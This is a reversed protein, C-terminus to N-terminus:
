PCEIYHEPIKVFIKKPQNIRVAGSNIDIRVSDRPHVITIHTINPVLYGGEMKKDKYHITMDVTDAPIQIRIKELEFDKCKLYYQILIEDNEALDGRDVQNFIKKKHSSLIYHEKENKDTIQVYEIAPDLGIPLGLLLSQFFDYTVETGLLSSIYGLTEAFYCKEGKNVFILSDQTIVYTGAIYAVYKVTGSFASDKRMKVTTAFWQSRKKTKFDVGINTFFRDFPITDMAFLRAQLDETSIKKCKSPKEKKTGDKTSGCAYISAGFIAILLIYFLKNKM